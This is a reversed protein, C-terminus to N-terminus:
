LPLGSDSVKLAPVVPNKRRIRWRACEWLVFIYVTLTGTFSGLAAGSAGQIGFFIMVGICLGFAICVSIRDRKTPKVGGRRKYRWDVIAGWIALLYFIGMFSPPQQTSGTEAILPGVLVFASLLFVTSASM